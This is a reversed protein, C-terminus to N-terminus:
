LPQWKGSEASRYIAAEIELNRLYEAALNAIPRGHRLGAVVHSQLRLVSDGGAGRDTWEYVIEREDNDGFSRHHLRAEGDLRLTGASGEIWMEGMTLRRNTAVHDSLRNGDFLGTAGNAFDFLIVGGDEGQIVPNRRRLRAFVGTMEGMIFRFSDVWHIATERVLLRPMTQFYPQRDLYARPGQGDGPRMRFAIQYPTGVDGAAIREAIAGYWPQFRFNEHVILPVGAAQAATAADRAAALDVGFPKQCIMAIRRDVGRRIVEAQAAPPLIIDLLDPAVQALMADLDTFHPPGGHADAMASARAGDRDCVAVLEVEPIRVWADHHFRSFYGAGVTAVRLRNGGNPNM